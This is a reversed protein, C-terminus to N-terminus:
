NATQLYSYINDAEFNPLAVSMDPSMAAMPFTSTFYGLANVSFGFPRSKSVNDFTPGASVIVPMVYCGTFPPQAGAPLPYPNTVPHFWMEFLPRNPTGWWAPNILTGDPDLPDPFQSNRGKKGFGPNLNVWGAAANGQMSVKNSASNYNWAFRFFALAQKPNEFSDIIEPMGDGDTDYIAYKIKDDSLAAAGGDRAVSLALRLCAGSETLHNVTAPLTGAVSQTWYPLMKTQYDALYRQQGPPIYNNQYVFPTVIQAPPIALQGTAALTNNGVEAYSQPFAEMLRFKRWLVKARAPDNGALTMVAPSPTDKDAEAIVAAWHTLMIKNVVTITAVTNRREQGGVTAFVAWTAMAVLIGIIAMVVLLEILTFSPRRLTTNRTCHYV